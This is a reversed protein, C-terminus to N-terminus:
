KIKRYYEILRNDRQIETFGYQMYFSQLKERDIGCELVINPCPILDSASQIVAFAANLIFEGSISSTYDSSIHKGLQAILVASFSEDEKIIGGFIRRRMNNSITDPIGFSKHALTFYGEIVIDEFRNSYSSVIM